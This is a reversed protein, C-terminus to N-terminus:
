IGLRCQHARRAEISSAFAVVIAEPGIPQGTGGAAGRSQGSDGSDASHGEFVRGSTPERLTLRLEGRAVNRRLKRVKTKDQGRLPASTRM